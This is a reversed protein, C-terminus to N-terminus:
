GINLFPYFSIYQSQYGGMACFKDGKSIPLFISSMMQYGSSNNIQSINFLTGNIKLIAPSQPAGNSHCYYSICHAYIWGNRTAVNESNWAQIEEKSWDPFGTQTGEIGPIFFLPYPDGGQNATFSDGKSLPILTSGFSNHSNSHQSFYINISDNITVFDATQCSGSCAYLWGDRDVINKSGWLKLQLDNYAPLSVIKHDNRFKYYNMTASNHSGVNNAIKTGKHLPLTISSFGFGSSCGSINIQKSNNVKIFSPSTPGNTGCYAFLWCDFSLTVTNNENFKTGSKWDIYFLPPKAISLKTDNQRIRMKEDMESLFYQYLEKSRPYKQEFLELNKKPIQENKDYAGIIARTTSDDIVLRNFYPRKELEYKEEPSPNILCYQLFNM